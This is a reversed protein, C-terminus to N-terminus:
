AATRGAGERLERLSGRAEGDRVSRADALCRACLSTQREITIRRRVGDVLRRVAERSRVRPRVGCRLCAPPPADLRDPPPEAEGGLEALVDRVLGKFRREASFRDLGVLDAIEPGTLGWSRLVVITLQEHMEQPAMGDGALRRAIVRRRAQQVETWRVLTSLSTEDYGLMAASSENGSLNASSRPVADALIADERTLGLLFAVEGRTYVASM